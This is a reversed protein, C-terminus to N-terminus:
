GHNAEQRQRQLTLIQAITRKLKFIQKVNKVQKTRFDIALQALSKRSDALLTTLEQDTKSTLETFKM